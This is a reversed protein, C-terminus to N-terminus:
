GRGVRSCVGTRTDTGVSLLGCSITVSSVWSEGGSVKIALFSSQPPSPAGQSSDEGLTLTQSVPQASVRHM